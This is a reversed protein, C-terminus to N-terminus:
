RSKSYMKVSKRKELRLRVEILLQEIQSLLDAISMTEYSSVDKRAM